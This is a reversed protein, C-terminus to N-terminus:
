PKHLKEIERAIESYYSEHNSDYHLAGRPALDTDRFPLAKGKVTRTGTNHLLTFSVPSTSPYRRILKRISKQVGHHNAPLKKLPVGRGEDAAREVAGYLALEIDRFIYVVEVRWGKALALDIMSIAWKTDILTGDWGLDPESESGSMAHTKGAGWGGAMFSVDKRRGRKSLERAFRDQAYRWALDWGPVLDRRHGAPVDRYRTDLFRAIDTSIIRGGRSDPLTDYVRDADDSNAILRAMVDRAKEQEKSLKSPM